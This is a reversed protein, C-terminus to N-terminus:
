KKIYECLAFSIDSTIALSLLLCQSSFTLFLYTMTKRKNNEWWVNRMNRVFVGVHLAIKRHM